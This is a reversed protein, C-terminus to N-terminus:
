KIERLTWAYMARAFYHVFTRRDGAKLAWGAMESLELIYIEWKVVPAQRPKAWRARRVDRDFTVLSHLGMLVAGRQEEWVLAKRWDDRCYLAGNM